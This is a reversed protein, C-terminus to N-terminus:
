KKKKDEKKKDSGTKYKKEAKEKSEKDKRKAEKLRSYAGAAGALAIGAGIGIGATKVGKSVNDLGDKIREGALYSGRASVMGGAIEPRVGYVGSEEPHYGPDYDFHEKGRIVQDVRTDSIHRYKEEFEKQELFESFMRLETETMEVSYLKMKKKCLRKKYGM